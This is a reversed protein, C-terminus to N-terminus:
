KSRFKTFPVKSSIEVFRIISNNVAHLMKRQSSFRFQRSLERKEENPFHAHILKNLKEKNGMRFLSCLNAFFLCLVFSKRWVKVITLEWDVTIGFDRNNDELYCGIQDQISVLCWRAQFLERRSSPQSFFPSFSFKTQRQFIPLTV